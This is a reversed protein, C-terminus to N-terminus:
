RDAGAGGYPASATGTLLVNGRGDTCTVDYSAVGDRDSRLEARVAVMAPITAPTRWRVKLTGGQAWRAGFAAVMAESVLALVLMGHAIAGDFGGEKAFAPDLHLPNHDHAADAYADVRAQDLLRAVTPVEPPGSM